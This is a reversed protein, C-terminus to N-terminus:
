IQIQISYLQARNTKHGRSTNRVLYPFTLRNLPDITYIPADLSDVTFPFRHIFTSYTKLKGNHKFTTINKNLYLSIDETRKM